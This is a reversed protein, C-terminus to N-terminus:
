LSVIQFLLLLDALVQLWALLLIYDVPDTQNNEQKELFKKVEKISKDIDEAM